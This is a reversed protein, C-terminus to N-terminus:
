PVCVVDDVELTRWAVDVAFRVSVEETWELLSHPTERGQLSRSSRKTALWWLKSGKSATLLCALRKCDYRFALQHISQWHHLVSPDHVVNPARVWHPEQLEYYDNNDVALVGKPHFQKVFVTEYHRTTEAQWEM